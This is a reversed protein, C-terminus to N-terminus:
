PETIQTTRPHGTIPNMGLHPSISHAIKLAIASSNLRTTYDLSGANLNEVNTSNIPTATGKDMIIQALAKEIERPLQHVNQIEVGEAILSEINLEIIKM